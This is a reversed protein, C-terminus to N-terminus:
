LSYRASKSTTPSVSSDFKLGFCCIYIQIRPVTWIIRRDPTQVNILIDSEGIGEWVFIEYEEIGKWIFVDSKEIEECSLIEFNRLEM